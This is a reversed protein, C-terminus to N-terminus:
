RKKSLKKLTAHVTQSNQKPTMKQIEPGFGDKAIKLTSLEFAPLKLITPTFGMSKTGVTISAGPPTSSVKVSFTVKALSVKIPKGAPWPQASAGAAFFLILCGAIASAITRFFARPSKCKVRTRRRILASRIGACFATIM